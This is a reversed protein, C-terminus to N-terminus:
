RDLAAQTRALEVLLSKLQSAYAAEPMAAKRYKLEDIQQELQEKAALLDRQAPDQARDQADGFRVLTLSSLMRGEGSDLSPARVAAGRGTDEFVAHETALRKQTTYFEATKRAAYEFAELASISDSKDVDAAPDQLAEVWYRAFVTANKETGSKTAAIVARGRRQLAPISGGSASTTNVVLQTGAPVANCLTALEEASVDPGPLNFKYTVGDYSGHGILLLVFADGPTAAAALDALVQRLRARTAEAGSLTQVHLDAGSAKLLRDVGAAEASFSQEYDAEGGLGAVTVWYTAAHAPLALLLACLGCLYNM